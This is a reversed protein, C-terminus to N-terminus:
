FNDLRYLGCRIFILGYDPSSKEAERKLRLLYRLATEIRDASRVSVVITDQSVEIVFARAGSLVPAVVLRIVSEPLDGFDTNSHDVIEQYRIIESGLDGEAILVTQENWLFFGPYLIISDSAVKDVIGDPLRNSLAHNWLVLVAFTLMFPIRLMQNGFKVAITSRKQNTAEDIVDSEPRWKQGPFYIVRGRLGWNAM